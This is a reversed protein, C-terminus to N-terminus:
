GATPSRARSMETDVSHVRAFGRLELLLGRVTIRPVADCTVMTCLLEFPSRHAGRGVVDDPGQEPHSANMM